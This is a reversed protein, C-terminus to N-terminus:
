RCILDCLDIPKEPEELDSLEDIKKLITKLRRTVKDHSSESYNYEYIKLIKCKAETLLRQDYEDLLKKM